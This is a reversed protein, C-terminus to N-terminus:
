TQTQRKGFTGRYDTSTFIVRTFRHSFSRNSSRFSAYPLYCLPHRVFNLETPGVPSYLSSITSYPRHAQSLFIVASTVTSCFRASLVAALRRSSIPYLKLSIPLHCTARHRLRLPLSYKFDHSTLRHFCRSFLQLSDLGPLKQKQTVSYVIALYPMINRNNFSTILKFQFGQFISEM